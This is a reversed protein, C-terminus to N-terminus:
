MMFLRSGCFPSRAIRARASSPTRPRQNPALLSALPRTSSKTDSTKEFNRLHTKSEGTWAYLDRPAEQASGECALVLFVALCVAVVRAGRRTPGPTM